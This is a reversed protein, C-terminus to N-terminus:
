LYRVTGDQSASLLANPDTPHWSVRNVARTHGKSILKQASQSTPGGIELNWLVVSGSTAASALLNRFQYQPHWNIDNTALNKDSRGAVGRLNRLETLKNYNLGILKLVDRGAVAAYLHDPSM